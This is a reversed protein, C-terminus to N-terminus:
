ELARRVVDALEAMTFPKPLFGDLANGVWNSAAHEIYGSMLVIRCEPYAKRLAAALEEGGMRPMTVDLLALAVTDAHKEFMGM